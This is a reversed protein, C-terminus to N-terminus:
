VTEILFVHAAGNGDPQVETVLYLQGRASFKDGQLPTASLDGLRVTLMPRTTAFPVGGELELSEFAADFPAVISEAIATLAPTFTVLDTAESFTDRVAVTALDALALWVM